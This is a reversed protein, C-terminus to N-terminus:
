KKLGFEIDAYIMGHDSGFGKESVSINFLATDKPVIIADLQQDIGPFTVTDQRHFINKFGIEDM